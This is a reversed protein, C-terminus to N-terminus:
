QRQESYKEVISGTIAMHSADYICKGNAIILLQPSQHIVGLQQAVFNSLERNHIVDLLFIETKNVVANLRHHAMASLPCRVSHKFVFKLAISSDSILSEFKLQTDLKEWAM